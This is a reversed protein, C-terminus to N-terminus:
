VLTVAINAASITPVQDIDMSTSNMTPKSTIMPRSTVTQSVSVVWSLGAGSVIKTGPAVAGTQDLVTQGIAIVGTVSSVTLTTGAIAGTFSALINNLSSVDISVIQAWPGLSAVASYFRSAYVTGGIRQRSGGDAGSFAAIIANQILTVADAPVQANNAISVAFLVPTNQPIEFSVDYTPYPPNYAVNNDEVVVTTNGNYDCGPAKKSWIARAVDAANGGVVAVYVSHPDLLVGGISAASNATNETVYADLVNEVSLVAGLISNLSGISNLAVSAARRQEFETRSETNTGIVGDTPNNITDWGPIANYIQTISNAPCTVPGLTNCAFSLTM